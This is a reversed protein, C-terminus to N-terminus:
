VFRFYKGLIGVRYIPLKLVAVFLIYAVLTYTITVILNVKWSRVNLWKQSVILFVPTAVWYGIYRFGLYYVFIGLMFLFAHKHELLNVTGSDNAARTKRIGNALVTVACVVMLASLAMPLLKAEGPIGAAQLLVWVSFLSLATGTYVDYHLKKIM